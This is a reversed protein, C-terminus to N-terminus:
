ARGGSERAVRDLDADMMLNVLADFTVTPRWGLQRFAKSADGQVRDVDVPRYFRPDIEVLVRNTRRDVGKEDVGTGTWAIDFGSRTAAREVFDRVSHTEGTAIVYDDGQPQQLMLWMAQVYDQASGWDRRADLNGLKLVPQLGAKIRALSYTIKRTVFNEGRRPSEHNFLIGNSAHMGYTERYSRVIWYAYLKAIAYPSLPQFPTLETQPAEAVHGYLESSSAQYFRAKLGIHRVCELLRLVATANIETTHEPEEFSVGVHSQSALNYIEDPRSAALIRHLSSPDSMNGYHLEFVRGQSLARQRTDEIRGRSFQSTRRVMGHVDYGKELLLECLFSGDQGNVGTILAVKAM